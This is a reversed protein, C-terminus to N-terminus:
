AIEDILSPEEGSDLGSWPHIDRQYHRMVLNAILGTWGTQHAAGLGAGTEAHFYEHFAFLDQWGPDADAPWHGRLAPARAGNDHRYLDSLREAILSAIQNLNLRQGGLCPVTVRFEDGLFRHFRELSSVLSYNTPFWIPGRWNSNGGFMPSVSEGPVYDILADGIGPMFGLHRDEAHIRSLSRVGFRSLFQDEDLLRKLIRPLMSHDVLALLREGRENEWDPCACVYSGRFLGGKHEKLLREFRPAHDLMRRNVIEVAFLPILGVWSYIPIRQAGDPTELLDMFFGEDSDWLSPTGSEETGAAAEAIALFQKYCHIAIDEYHPDEVCLELAILTMKLSFHAMWGTADAQKLRYGDPLPQSRDYVSINDLGLFGGEFLNAGEADKRNIWWAFNLLLKHFVRKLFGHDGAGRQIREARFVKIAAMALVPPNGDGFDWEYAPIQGNPHMYRDSLMLEVQDKAFDVDVLALAACQYALDWAAFWPSEWADPMSLVDRARVHRWHCNRGCRRADPPPIQDGDLWRAVDYHYFQKTWIMGALAQRLIRADVADAEPLLHQYFADAEAEREAFLRADDAFPADLPEASLVLQITERGGAAIELRHWAAVKTGVQAPNVAGTEGAVVRRHIGDKVYPSANPSGWILASNSDNETFLLEATGAATAGYLFYTGLCPHSLRLAWDAGSPAAIPEMTPRQPDSGLHRAEARARAEAADGWLDYHPQGWSWTNRFWCTPLVHVTATEPGRNSVAIRCHITSPSAKAYCVEADWFRDDAFAGATILGFPEADRGRRANEDILQQYPFARQPYRYLYRLWSHSPTADLYFYVEKVDEGRNGEANTLGFAREKLFPDQGNWLALALCLYQQEDCIGGLGDESWRYARSRAHAHPFYGWADGDASYDERVTGWAREALYPGWLRWDAQGQRQDELRQREANLRREPM